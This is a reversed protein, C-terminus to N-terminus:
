RRARIQKEHHRTHVLHFRLWQDVTFAGLIPHDLVRAGGFVRGARAAVDDLWALDKKVGELVDPLPIAGTPLIHRPAQRGEPFYGLNILAFAQLSQKLTVPTALPTNKELCREFGKATGSYARQLHEVIEVVSWRDGARRTAAEPTVGATADLVVALCRELYPSVM